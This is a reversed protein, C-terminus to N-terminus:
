TKYSPLQPNPLSQYERFEMLIADLDATPLFREFLRTETATSTEFRHRPDLLSLDKITLDGFPFKAIIKRVSEIYFTRISVYFNAERQTGEFM